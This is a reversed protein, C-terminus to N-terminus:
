RVARGADFLDFVPGTGPVDPMSDDIRAELADAFITGLELLRRAAGSKSEDPREAADKDVRAGQEATIQTVLQRPFQTPRAM